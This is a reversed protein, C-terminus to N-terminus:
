KGFFELVKDRGSITDVVKKNKIKLLTPNKVKLSNIDTIKTEEEDDKLAFKSNLSNDLDVIYITDKTYSSVLSSYYSAYNDSYNYFLVYYEEKNRNFTEGALIETYQIKTEEPTTATKKKNGLKIEGSAIATALYVLILAIVVGISIKILRNYELDTSKNSRYLKQKNRKM